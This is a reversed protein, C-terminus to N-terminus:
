RWWGTSASSGRRTFSEWGAGPWSRSSSMTASRGSPASTPIRGPGLRCRRASRAPRAKRSWQGFADEVFDLDDPFRDRYDDATPEDGSESRLELELALLEFLLISRDPGDVVDLFSEIRPSAGRALGSRFPLVGRRDSRRRRDAAPPGPDDTRRDADLREDRNPEEGWLQRILDLRRAVTRRACGLREAIEDRTYGEMRELAIRRLQDDGLRDLLRRFEEAMMAAFEPTPERGVLEALPDDDRDDPDRATAGRDAGCGGDRRAELGSASRGTGRGEARHDRGAVALPGRPRGALPVARPGAGRM